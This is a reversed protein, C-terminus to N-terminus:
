IMIIFVAAAALLSGTYFLRENKAFSEAAEAAKRGFEASLERCAGAIASPSTDAFLDALSCVAATNEAGTKGLLRDGLAASRWVQALDDGPAYRSLTEGPFTFAGQGGCTQLAALAELLGNGGVSVAKELSSFFGALGGLLRVSRRREYVANLGALLVAACLLAISVYKTKM